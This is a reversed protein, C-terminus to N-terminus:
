KGAHNAADIAEVILYYESEKIPIVDEVPEYKWNDPMALLFYRESGERFGITKWPDNLGVIKNLETWSVSKLQDWRDQMAKGERTNLRPCIANHDHHFPKWAKGDRLPHDKPVMIASVGGVRRSIGYHQQIDFGIEESLDNLFNVTEARAERMEDLMSQIKQGTKSQKDVKFKM